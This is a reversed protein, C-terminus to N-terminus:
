RTAGRRARRWGQVGRAAARTESSRQAARWAAWLRNERNRVVRVVDDRFEQLCPVPM